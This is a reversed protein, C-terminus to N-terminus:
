SNDTSFDPPATGPFGAEASGAHLRTLRPAEWARMAPRVEAKATATERAGRM